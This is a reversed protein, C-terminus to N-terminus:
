VRNKAATEVKQVITDEKMKEMFRKVNPYEEWTKPLKVSWSTMVYAYADLVTRKNQYFHNSTGILENLHSLVRDIRLYSAEKVEEQRVRDTSVTYRSPVFYPWFAPHFDGTLFSMTEDFEFIEEEGLKSGLDEEPYKSVIYQLIANAQTMPRNWGVELAPVMGLPNVKRYEESKPAVKEVEYEAGAWELSIWCALACTGPAYYLKM